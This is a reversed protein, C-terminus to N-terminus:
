GKRFRRSTLEEPLVWCVINWNTFNLYIYSSEIVSRCVPQKERESARM